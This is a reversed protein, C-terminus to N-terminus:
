RSANGAAAPPDPADLGNTMFNVLRGLGDGRNTMPHVCDNIMVVDGTIAAWEEPTFTKNAEVRAIAALWRLSLRELPVDLRDRKRGPLFAALSRARTIAVNLRRSQEVWGEDIRGTKWFVPASLSTFLDGIEIVAERMMGAREHRQVLYQALTVGLVVGAAGIIAGVIAAEM